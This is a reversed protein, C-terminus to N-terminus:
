VGQNGNSVNNYIDSVEDYSTDFNQGFRKLELLIKEEIGNFNL